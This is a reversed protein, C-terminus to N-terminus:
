VASMSVSQPLLQDRGLVGAHDCHGHTSPGPGDLQMGCRRDRRVREHHPRRHRGMRQQQLQSLDALREPRSVRRLSPPLQPVLRRRGQQHLQGALLHELRRLPSERQVPSPEDIRPLGSGPDTVDCGPYGANYTSQTDLTSQSLVRTASISASRSAVVSRPSTAPSSPRSSARQARRRSCRRQSSRFQLARAAAFRAARDLMYALRTPDRDVAANRRRQM